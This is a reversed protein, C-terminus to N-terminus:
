QSIKEKETENQMEPHILSNFRTCEFSSALWRRYLCNYCSRDTDSIEEEEDNDHEFLKCNKALLASKEYDRKGFLFEGSRNFFDM